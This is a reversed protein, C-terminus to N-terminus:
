ICCHSCPKLSVVDACFCREGLQINAMPNPSRTDWFQTPFFSFFNTPLLKCPHPESSHSFTQFVFQLCPDRKPCPIDWINCNLRNVFETYCLLIVVSCTRRFNVDSCVSRLTSREGGGTRKSVLVVWYECTTVAFREKGTWRGWSLRLALTCKRRRRRSKPVFVRLM